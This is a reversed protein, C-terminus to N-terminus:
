FSLPLQRENESASDYAERSRLVFERADPSMFALDDSGDPSRERTLAGSRGSNSGPGSSTALFSINNERRDMEVIM